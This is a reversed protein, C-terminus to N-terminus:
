FLAVGMITAMSLAVIAVVCGGMVLAGSLYIGYTLATWGKSSDKEQRNM